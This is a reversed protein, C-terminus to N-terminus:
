PKLISRLPKSRLLKKDEFDCNLDKLAAQLLSGGFTVMVPRRQRGMDGVGNKSGSGLEARYSLINYLLLVLLILLTFYVGM